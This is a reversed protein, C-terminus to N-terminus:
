ESVALMRDKEARWEDAYECDAYEAFYPGGLTYHVLAADRVPADYGVLHNWRKPLAGIEDDSRLWKFQHL